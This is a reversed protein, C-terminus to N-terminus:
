PKAETQKEPLYGPTRCFKRVDRINDTVFADAGMESFKKAAEDNQVFWISCWLGAARLKQLIEETLLGSDFAKAPLNMGYLDLEAKLNLLHELVGEKPLYQPYIHRVRRLEPYHEKAYELARVNGTAIMIRKHSIKLRDFEALIRELTNEPFTKTDIWFEPCEKAVALGEALTQLKEEKYDGTPLFTGQAKIEQITKDKIAVNWGLCRTLTPDHSLVAIGDKTFHVDLKIVEAKRQMALEYAPRSHSPAYFREGQHSVCKVPHTYPRKAVEEANLTMSLLTMVVVFLGYIKTTLPIAGFKFM